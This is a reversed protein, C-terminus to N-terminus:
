DNDKLEDKIKKVPIILGGDEDASEPRILKLTNKMNRGAATVDSLYEVLDTDGTILKSM